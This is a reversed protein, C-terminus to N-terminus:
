IRLTGLLFFSFHPNCGSSSSFMDPLVLSAVWVKAHIDTVVYVDRVELAQGHCNWVSARQFVM